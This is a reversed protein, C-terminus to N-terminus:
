QRPVLVPYRPWPRPSAIALPITSASPPWMVSTLVGPRPLVNENLTGRQSDSTRAVTVAHRVGGDENMRVRPQGADEGRGGAVRDAGSIAARDRAAGRHERGSRSRQQDLEDILDRLDLREVARVLALAQQQEGLVEVHSATHVSGAVDPLGGGGSAAPAVSPRMHM